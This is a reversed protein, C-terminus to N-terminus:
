SLNATKLEEIQDAIKLLSDEGPKLIANINKPAQVHQSRKTSEAPGKRNREWNKRKFTKRNKDTNRGTQKRHHKSKPDTKKTPEKLWDPMLQLDSLDVPTSDSM